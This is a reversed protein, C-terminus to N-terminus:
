KDAEAISAALPGRMAGQPKECALYFGSAMAPWRDGLSANVATLRPYGSFLLNSLQGAFMASGTKDRVRFGAEDVAQQLTKLTFRQLHPSSDLSSPHAEVFEEEPRGTLWVKFRMLSRELRTRALLWGLGLRNWAFAELEYWGFGNPVTILLM